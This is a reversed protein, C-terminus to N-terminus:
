TAGGISSTSLAGELAPAVLDTREAAKKIEKTRGTRDPRFGDGGGSKKGCSNSFNGELPCVKYGGGRNWRGQGKKKKVAIYYMRLMAQSL